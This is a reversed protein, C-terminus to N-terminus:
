TESWPYLTRADAIQWCEGLGQEPDELDSDKKFGGWVPPFTALERVAVRTHGNPLVVAGRHLVWDLSDKRAHLIPRGLHAYRAAAREELRQPYGSDHFLARLGTWLDGLAGPGPLLRGSNMMTMVKAFADKQEQSVMGAGEVQDRLFTWVVKRSWGAGELRAFFGAAHTFSWQTEVVTAIVLYTTNRNTKHPWSSIAQTWFGGAEQQAAVEHAVAVYAILDPHLREFLALYVEVPPFYKPRMSWNSSFFILTLPLTVIMYILYALGLVPVAVFVGFFLVLGYAVMLLGKAVPNM